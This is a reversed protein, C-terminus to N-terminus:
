GGPKQRYMNRYWQSHADAKAGTVSPFNRCKRGKYRGKEDSLIHAAPQSGKEILEMEASTVIKKLANYAFQLGPPKDVPLGYFEVM